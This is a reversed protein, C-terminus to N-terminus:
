EINRREVCRVCENERGGIKRRKGCIRQVDDEHLKLWWGSGSEVRWLLWALGDIM